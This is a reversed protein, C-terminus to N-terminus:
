TQNMWRTPREALSRDKRLNDGISRRFGVIVTLGDDGVTSSSIYDQANRQKTIHNINQDIPIGYTRPAPPPTGFRPAYFFVTSQLGPFTLPDVPM